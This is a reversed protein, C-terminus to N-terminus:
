KLTKNKGASECHIIEIDKKMTNMKKLFPIGKETLDEKGKVFFSWKPSTESDQMLVWNKSGGCSLKKQSIIDLYIM